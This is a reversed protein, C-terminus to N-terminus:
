AGAAALTEILVATEKTVHLCAAIRYGALPKTVEVEKRIQMMVPMRSEAWEIKMRGQDALTIDKVKYHGTKHDM